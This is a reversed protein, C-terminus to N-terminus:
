PRAGTPRVGLTIGAAILLQAAVYTTMVLVSTGPSSGVADFAVAALTADSVVFLAGGLALWTGQPRRLLPSVDLARAAMALLVASYVLVPVLLSGVGDRLWVNMGAWLAVYPVALVPRTRVLGRGPVTRFAALYALQMALFCVLGVVFALDADGLLAVDGLWALALGVLLWRVAPLQPRTAAVVVWCALLPMLLPKALWELWSLDAVVALLDAALVLALVVLLVVAGPSRAARAGSATDTV